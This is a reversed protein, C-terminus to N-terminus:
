IGTHDNEHTDGDSVLGHVTFDYEHFLRFYSPYGPRIGVELAQALRAATYNSAGIARVKGQRIRQAYAELTEELQHM